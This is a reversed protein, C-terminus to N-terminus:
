VAGRVKLALRGRKLMRKLPQGLINKHGSFYGRPTGPNYGMIGSYGRADQVWRGKYDEDGYGLDLHTAHDVDLLYEIVMNSLVVGPAEDRFDERFNTRTLSGVGGSFIWFQAAMAKGDLRLVGLRLYGLDAAIKM